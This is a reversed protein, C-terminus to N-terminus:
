QRALFAEIEDCAAATGDESRIREGMHSARARMSEDQLVRQLAAQLQSPKKVWVGTGLAEQRRAHSQQDFLCPVVVSPLGAELVLANTGHSGSQEVAKAHSLLPRLPVFPWVGHPAGIGDPTARSLLFLGREGLADLARAVETFVEPRASPGLTGLTVVVPPPGDALFREVDVPIAGGDPGDWLTFGTLRYGPPWDPQPDLYHKSVLAFSDHPSLRGDIINWGKPVTLGKARRFRKFDRGYAFRDALRSRAAKWVIANGARGLNPLGAPATRASPLLMPFLDPVIWPVRHVDCPISATLAAAPHSVVVDSAQVIPELADYLVDLHPVVYKGFYLELTRAGGLRTGWRALWPGDEHLAAPGFDTGSHACRFPEAAFDAHFERPVVYTVDHGRRALESAIPVYPYVDGNHAGSYLAIRAV